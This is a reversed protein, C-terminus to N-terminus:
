KFGLYSQFNGHDLKASQGTIGGYFGSGELEGDESFLEEKVEVRVEPSDSDDDDDILLPDTIWEQAPVPFLDSIPFSEEEEAVETKLDAEM